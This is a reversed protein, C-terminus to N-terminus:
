PTGGAVLLALSADDGGVEAPERCWDDLTASMNALGNRVVHNTIDDLVSDHWDPDVFAAGFGDSALVGVFPVSGMRPTPVSWVRTVARDAADPMCLSETESGPGVIETLLREVRGDPYRAMVEGDGLKCVAVQDGSAALVLLTAGYILPAGMRPDITALVDREASTPPEALLHQMCRERWDRVIGAFWAAPDDPLRASRDLSAAVTEVAFRSGLAARSCRDSGHGDSVAIYTVTGVGAAFSDERPQDKRTHASGTEGGAFACWDAPM